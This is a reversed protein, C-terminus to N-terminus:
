AEEPERLRRVAAAAGVVALAIGLIRLRGDRGGSSSSGDEIPVEVGEPEESANARRSRISRAIAVVALIMGAMALKGAITGGEGEAGTETTTRKRGRASGGATGPEVVEEILAPRQLNIEVLAM